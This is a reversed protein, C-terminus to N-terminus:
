IDEHMCVRVERYPHSLLFNQNLIVPNKPKKWGDDPIRPVLFCPTESVPDREM